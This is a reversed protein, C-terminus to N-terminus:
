ISEDKPVYTMLNNYSKHICKKFLRKNKIVGKKFSCIINIKNKCSIINYIIESDKATTLFNIDTIKINFKDVPPGIINTYVYDTNNIIKDYYNSLININIYPIINKIISSIIPIFASYKYNNFTTNVIKLLSENDHSNNVVNFIPSMNNTDNIKTVNIPSCTQILKNKQTYINDTKIMLTYLFDNVTINRKEVFKKIKSLSFSKCIIYDTSTNRNRNRNNNNNNPLFLLKLIIILNKILLTITGIIWYYISSLLNTKRKFLPLKNDEKKTYLPSSLMNILKYGDVYAHHIKFFIRSKNEEKNICVLMYFNYETFHNNLISKIYINFDSNKIYKITVCKNINFSAIDCLVYENNKKIINQKLIPNNKIIENIYNLVFEQSLEADIDLYTLISYAQYDDKALIKSFINNIITM